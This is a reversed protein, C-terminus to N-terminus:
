YIQSNSYWKAKNVSIILSLTLLQNLNICHIDSTNPSDQGSLWARASGLEAVYQSGALM